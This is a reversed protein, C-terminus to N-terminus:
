RVERLGGEQLARAKLRLAGVLLGSVQDCRRRLWELEGVLEDLRDLADDIEAGSRTLEGDLFIAVASWHVLETHADEIGEWEQVCADIQM